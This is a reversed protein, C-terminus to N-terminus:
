DNWAKPHALLVWTEGLKLKKPVQPIRKSVGYRRAEAIFDEPTYYREGVWLIGVDEPRGAGVPCQKCHPLDCASGDLGLYYSKVFTINRAQKLGEGCTPCVDPIRIPLRECVASIGEGVLYLAGVKRHGCGRTIRQM